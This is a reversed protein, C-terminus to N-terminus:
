PATSALPLGATRARPTGALAEECWREVDAADAPLERALDGAFQRWAEIQSRNVAVVAPIGEGLAFALAARFGGGEAERKGFKNVILLDAGAELAAMTSGAAAELASSDLRCGTALPGRDESISRAEGTALDTVIMDCACRDEREAASQITGALKLGREALSRVLGVLLQDVVRGCGPEYLVAALRPPPM